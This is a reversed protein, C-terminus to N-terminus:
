LASPLERLWRKTGPVRRYAFADHPVTIEGAGLLHPELNDRLYGRHTAELHDVRGNMRVM